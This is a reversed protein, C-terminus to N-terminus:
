RWLLAAVLSSAVFLGSAATTVRLARDIAGAGPPADGGLDRGLQYVGPKELGIGLAGAMAAM